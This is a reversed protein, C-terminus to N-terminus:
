LLQWYNWHTSFLATSCSSKDFVMWEEVAEVVTSAEACQAQVLAAARDREAQVEAVARRGDADVEATASVMADELGPAVVPQIGVGAVASANDLRRELWNMRDTADSLAVRLRVIEDSAKNAYAKAEPLSVAGPGINGLRRVIFEEQDM